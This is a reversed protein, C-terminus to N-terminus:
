RQCMLEIHSACCCFTQRRPWLPAYEHERPLSTAYATFGSSDTADTVGDPNNYHIQVFVSKYEGDKEIKLAMNSPLPMVDGGTDVDKINM